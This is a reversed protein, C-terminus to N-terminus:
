AALEAPVRSRRWDRNARLLFVLGLVVSIVPGSKRYPEELQWGEYPGNLMTLELLRRNYEVYRVRVRAGERLGNGSYRCRISVLQGADTAIRFSSGNRIPESIAGTVERRPSSQVFALTALGLELSAIGAVAFGVSLWRHAEASGRRWALGVVVAFTGPLLLVVFGLGVIDEARV